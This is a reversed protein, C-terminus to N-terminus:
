HFNSFWRKPVEVYQNLNMRNSNVWALSENAPRATRFRAAADEESPLKGSNDETGSRRHSVEFNSISDKAGSIHRSIAGPRLSYSHIM